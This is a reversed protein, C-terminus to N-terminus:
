NSKFFVAFCQLSSQSSLSFSVSPYFFYKETCISISIIRFFSKGEAIRRKKKFKNNNNLTANWETCLLLLPMYCRGLFDIWSKRIYLFLGTKQSKKKRLIKKKESIGGLSIMEQHKRIKGHMGHTWVYLVYGAKWQLAHAAMIHTHCQNVLSAAWCTPQIHIARSSLCAIHLIM